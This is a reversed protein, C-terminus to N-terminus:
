LVFYFIVFILFGILFFLIFFLFGSRFSGDADNNEAVNGQFGDRSGLREKLQRMSDMFEASESIPEVGFVQDGGLNDEFVNEVVENDIFDVQKIKSKREKPKKSAKKSKTPM